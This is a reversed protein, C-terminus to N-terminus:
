GASAAVFPSGPPVSKLRRLHAVKRGAKVIADRESRFSISPVRLTVVVPLDGPRPGGLGRCPRARAASASARRRVPARHAIHAIGAARTSQGASIAAGMLRELIQHLDCRDPQEAGDIAKVGGPARAKGVKGDGGDEALELSVKAIGPPRDVYGRRGLVPGACRGHAM